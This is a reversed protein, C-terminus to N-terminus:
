IKENEKNAEKNKKAQEMFEAIQKEREAKQKAVKDKWKKDWIEKWDPGEDDEMIEEFEDGYYDKEWFLLPNREEIEIDVDYNDKWWKKVSEANGAPSAGLAINCDFSDEERDFRYFNKCNAITDMVIKTIKETAGECQDDNDVWKYMEKLIMDKLPPVAESSRYGPHVFGNPDEKKPVYITKLGGNNLYDEVVEVDDKWHSLINYANKYKDRIYKFEEHSLYHRDCVRGDKQENIKGAKIEAILNKYDAEPQSKAYMEEMCKDYAEQIIDKREIM